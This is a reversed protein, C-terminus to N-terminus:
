ICKSEITFINHINYHANIHHHYYDYLYLDNNIKRQTEIYCFHKVILITFLRSNEPLNNTEAGSTIPKCGYPCAASQHLKPTRAQRISVLLTYYMQKKM